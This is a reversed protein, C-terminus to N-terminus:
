VVPHGRVSCSGTLCEGCKVATCKLRFLRACDRIIQLATLHTCNPLSPSVVDSRGSGPMRKSGWVWSCCAKCAKHVKGTVAVPRFITPKHDNAPGITAHSIATLLVSPPSRTRFDEPTPCSLFVVIVVFMYLPLYGGDEGDTDFVMVVEKSVLGM